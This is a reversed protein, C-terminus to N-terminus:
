TTESDMSNAEQALHALVRSLQAPELAVRIM